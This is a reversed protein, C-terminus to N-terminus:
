RGPRSKSAIPTAGQGVSTGSASAGLDESETVREAPEDETSSEPCLEVSDMQDTSGTRAIDDSRTPKTSNGKDLFIERWAWRSITRLADGTSGEIDPQDSVCRMLRHVAGDLENTKTLVGKIADLVTGGRATVVLGDPTRSVLEHETCFRLYEQLSHPNLNALAIVRTKPVPKRVAALVDRLVEINTRYSRGATVARGVGSSRERCDRDRRRRIVAQYLYARRANM